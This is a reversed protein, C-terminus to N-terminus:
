LWHSYRSASFMIFSSIHGTM